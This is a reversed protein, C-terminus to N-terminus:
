YKRRNSRRKSHRNKKTKSKSKSGGGSTTSTLKTWGTFTTRVKLMIKVMQNICAIFLFAVDDKKLLIPGKAGNDLKRKLIGQPIYIGAEPFMNNPKMTDITLLSAVVKSSSLSWTDLKGPEDKAVIGKPSTKYMGTDSHEGGEISLERDCLREDKKNTLFALINLVETISTNDNILDKVEPSLSVPEPDLSLTKMILALDPGNERGTRALLYNGLKILDINGAASTMAEFKKKQTGYDNHFITTSELLRKFLPNKATLGRLKDVGRMFANRKANEDGLTVQAIGGEAIKELLQNIAASEEANFDGGNAENEKAKEKYKALQGLLDAQLVYYAELKENASKDKTADTLGDIAAQMTKAQRIREEEEAKVASSVEAAKQIIDTTNEQVKRDLDATSRQVAEVTDQTLGATRKLSELESRLAPVVDDGGSASM